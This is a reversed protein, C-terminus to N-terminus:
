KRVSGSATAIGYPSSATAEQLLRGDVRITVHITGDKGKKQASLYVFAGDRVYFTASYPVRVDHQETGGISNRTTIGAETATGDISYEVGHVGPIAAAPRATPAPIPQPSSAVPLSPQALAPFSGQPEAVACNVKVRAGVDSEVVRIVCSEKGDTARTSTGVGDFGTQFTISSARLQEEYHGVVAAVSGAVSYSLDLAAASITTTLDTVRPFSSLWGPVQLPQNPHAIAPAVDAPAVPPQVPPPPPTQIQLALTERADPPAQSLLDNLYWDRHFENFQETQKGVVGILGGTWSPYAHSGDAKFVNETFTRMTYVPNQSSYEQGLHKFYDGTLFFRPQGRFALEVSTFARGKEAQAFQLLVRFVDAMSNTPEISKLDFILLSGETRYRASVEVGTNRPDGKLVSELDSQPHHTEVDAAVAFAAFLLSIVAFPKM